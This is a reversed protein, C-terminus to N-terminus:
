RKGLYLSDTASQNLHADLPRAPNLNQKGWIRSFPACAQRLTLGVDNLGYLITLRERYEQITFAEVVQWSEDCLHVVDPMATDRRFFYSEGAFDFTARYDHHGLEAVVDKNHDIFDAGGMVFDVVMLFTSKGISNTALDDGVVVNLGPKFSITNQHFKECSIAKLM